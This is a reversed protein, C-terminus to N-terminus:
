KGICFKEFIRNLIDDGVTQGTIQGLDDIAAKLDSALLEYSLKKELGDIATKLYKLSNEMLQVQRANAASAAGAEIGQGDTLQSVISGELEPLGQETIASIRLWSRDAKSNSPHGLDSKNLLVLRHYKETESLLRQDEATIPSTGDLVLLVLDAQELKGRARSVGHAEINDSTERLGATDFLRVPIGKIDIWGELVDRTTGATETVIAKEEKLLMNFLSSKGVNPRGAIVVRAGDKLVMAARSGKLLQKVQSEALEIKKILDRSDAPPLDEEPFDIMSEVLAAADLLSERVAAVKRSLGGSLRELAARAAAGTKANIIDCVAEAQALDIRGNLFARLSFEGPRAPRAGAALAAELVAGASAAGGHCTIEVMEEATFSHPPKLVVLMAEDLRTGGADVIHGYYLVHSKMASPRVKGSFIANGINASDPGSIRVMSLAAPGTGTAIAAITDNIKM